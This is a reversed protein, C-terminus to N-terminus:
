ITSTAAAVFILAFFGTWLLSGLLALYGCILGAIGLGRGSNYEDKIEKMSKHGFFVGVVSSIIGLVPVSWLILLSVISVIFSIMASNNQKGQVPPQQGMMYPQPMPPAAMQQYVPNGYPANYSNGYATQGYGFSQYPNVNYPQASQYDQGEPPYEMYPKAEPQPPVGGDYYPQNENESNPTTNNMTKIDTTKLARVVSEGSFSLTSLPM